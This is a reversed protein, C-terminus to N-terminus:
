KRFPESAPAHGRLLMQYAQSETLMAMTSRYTRGQSDEPASICYDQILGGLNLRPSKRWEKSQRHAMVSGAPNKLGAVQAVQVGFFVLDHEPHGILVDLQNGM